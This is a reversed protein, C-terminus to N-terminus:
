ISAGVSALGPNMLQSGTYLIHTMHYESPLKNVLSSLLEQGRGREREHDEHGRGPRGGGRLDPRRPGVLAQLRSRFSHQTRTSFPLTAASHPTTVVLM